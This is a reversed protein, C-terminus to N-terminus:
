EELYSEDYLKYVLFRVIGLDVVLTTSTPEYEMPEAFELGFMLGSIFTWQFVWM